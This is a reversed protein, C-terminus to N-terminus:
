SEGAAQNGLKSWDVVLTAEKIQDLALSFTEEGDQLMVHAADPMALIRATRAGRLGAAKVRVERGVYRLWHEAFRVPREIGPSSVELEWQPGM